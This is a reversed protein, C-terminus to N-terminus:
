GDKALPRRSNANYYWIFIKKTVMRNPSCRPTPDEGAEPPFKQPEFIFPALFSAGHWGAVTVTYLSPGGIARGHIGIASGIAPPARAVTETLAKGVEDNL